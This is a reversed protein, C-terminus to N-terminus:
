NKRSESLIVNTNQISDSSIHRPNQNCCSSKSFCSCSSYHKEKDVKLGWQRLYFGYPSGIESGRHFLCIRKWCFAKKHDSHSPVNVAAISKKYSTSFLTELLPVMWKLSYQESLSHAKLKETKQMKIWVHHIFTKRHISKTMNNVYKFSVSTINEYSEVQSNTQICQSRFTQSWRILVDAKCPQCHGKLRTM